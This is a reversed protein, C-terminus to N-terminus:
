GFGCYRVLGIDLYVMWGAVRKLERSLTSVMM